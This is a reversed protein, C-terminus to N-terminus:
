KAECSGCSAEAAKTCTAEEASSHCTANQAAACASGGKSKCCSGEPAGACESTAETQDGKVPTAKYGIKGFAEILHAEDTKDSNYCVTVEQRELSTTIKKVGKEFRLNSKIKTECSNCVMKPNVTFVCEVTEAMASLSLSTVAVAAMLIRSIKM